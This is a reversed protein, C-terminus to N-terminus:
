ANINMKRNSLRIKASLGINDYHLLSCLAEKQVDQSGRPVSGWIKLSAM